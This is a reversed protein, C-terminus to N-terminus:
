KRAAPRAKSHVEHIGGGGRGQADLMLKKMQGDTAAKLGRAGKGVAEQLAM